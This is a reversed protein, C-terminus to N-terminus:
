PEKTSSILYTIHQVGWLLPHQMNLQSFHKFSNAQQVAGQKWSFWLVISDRTKYEASSLPNRTHEQSRAWCTKAIM